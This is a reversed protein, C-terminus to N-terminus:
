GNLFEHGKWWVGRETGMRKVFEKHEKVIAPALFCGRAVWECFYKRFMEFGPPVTPNGLRWQEPMVVPVFATLARHELKETLQKLTYAHKERGLDWLEWKVVKVVTKSEKFAVPNDVSYGWPLLAAVPLVFEDIWSCIHKYWVRTRAVEAGNNEAEPFEAIYNLAVSMALYTNFDRDTMKTQMFNHMTKWRWYPLETPHITDLRNQKVPM